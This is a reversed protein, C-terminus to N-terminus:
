LNEIDTERSKAIANTILIRLDEIAELEDDSEKLVGNRINWKDLAKQETTYPRNHHGVCSTNMCQAIYKVIVKPKGGKWSVSRVEELVGLSACFPCRNLIDISERSM